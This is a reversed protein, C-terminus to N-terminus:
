HDGVRKLVLDEEAIDGVKRHLKIEDGSISGTYEIRIDNDNFHLPEVFSVKDQDISGETIAVDNTGNQRIGYARGTLNTGDAKFTFTYNQTGIQSDFQGQWKGDVPNQSSLTLNTAGSANSGNYYWQYSLPGTGTPAVSFAVTQGLTTTPNAAGADTARNAVIDYEALDGVKRHLKLQDGAITGTYEVVITNDQIVLSENFSVKDGDIKGDTIAVDNTGTERHGIARGTLNTGDAKLEFTYNQTGIQSDFQSKWTGTLNDQAFASGAFALALVTLTTTILKKM